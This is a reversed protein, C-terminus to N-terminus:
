GQRLSVGPGLIIAFAAVAAVALLRLSRRQLSPLTITPASVRAITVLGANGGLAVGLAAGATSRWEAGAMLAALLSVVGTTTWVAMTVRRTVVVTGGAVGTRSLLRAAVSVVAAYGALGVIALVLRALRQDAVGLLVGARNWDGLDFAASFVLYGFATLGNLTLVIWAALRTWASGSGRWWAWGLVMLVINVLSGAGAVIRREWIPAGVQGCGFHFTTWRLPEGGVALCALGHGACEHLAAAAVWALAALAAIDPIPSPAATLRETM